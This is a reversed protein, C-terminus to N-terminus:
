YLRLNLTTTFNISPQVQYGYVLVKPDATQKRPRGNRNLPVASSARSQSVGGNEYEFVRVMAAVKDGPSVGVPLAWTPVITGQSHKLPQGYPDDNADGPPAFAIVNHGSVPVAIDWGLDVDIAAADGVLNYPNIKTVNRKYAFEYSSKWGRFLLGGYTEVYPVSQVGRFMVTHPAMVLSGLTIQEDNIYGSYQNNITPDTQMEQTISINVMGTLQSIGEYIDGATNMAPEEGAWSNTGSRPRWRYVPSEILATSTSWNAPRIEPPQSKPDQQNQGGGPTTQYSFTALLVMRSDGDYAVNFSTCYVNPNQPHVDGIRIGCVTQIDVAAGPADSIVRFVRTTQDAVTGAEASRSFTTGSTIESFQPM